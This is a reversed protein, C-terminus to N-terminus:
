VVLRYQILHRLIIVLSKDLFGKYLSRFENFLLLFISSHFLFSFLSSLDGSITHIFGQTFSSNKIDHIKSGIKRQILMDAKYTCILM